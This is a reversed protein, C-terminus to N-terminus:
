MKKKVLTQFLQILCVNNQKFFINLFFLFILKVLADVNGPIPYKSVAAPKDKWGQASFLVQM